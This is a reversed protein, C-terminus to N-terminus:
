HEEHAIAMSIYVTSLICFVVTQVVCVLFGLLMMPLPLLIDYLRYFSSVLTHDATLNAALRISLSIPRVTHSVLEVVLMLLMLAVVAPYIWWPGSTIPGLFHKFYKVAGHERVGYVHTTVFIVLACAVTTNFNSTPPAFGPVLGIMNSLFIFLGATGILPLFYKAPKEGMIDKMIGYAGEVFLELFNRVTLTPEPVIAAKMDATKSDLLLAGAVILVAVLLGTLVHSLGVHGDSFGMSVLTQDFSTHAWFESLKEELSAVGPVFSWWTDHEGM